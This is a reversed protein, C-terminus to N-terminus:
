LTRNLGRKATRSKIIWALYFPHALNCTCLLMMVGNVITFNNNLVRTLLLTIPYHLACFMGLGMLSLGYLFGFHHSPYVVSCFAASGAYLSVRGFSLLTMTVYQVKASPLLSLGLTVIVSVDTILVQITVATFSALRLGLSGTFRKRFYDMLIGSLPAFFISLGQIVGFAITYTNVESTEVKTTIWSNFTGIFYTASIEFIGNHLLATWTYVEKLCENLSTCHPNESDAVKDDRDKDVDYDEELIEYKHKTDRIEHLDDTNSKEAFCPLEKYGFEYNKPLDYPPTRKPYFFFTQVVLLLSSAAYALFITRFSWGASFYLLYFALYVLCSSDTAGSILTIILARYKSSLNAVTLTNILLAQGSFCCLSFSLYLMWSREPTALATMVSGLIFLLLLLSRTIWNGYRDSAHGYLVLFMLPVSNFVAYVLNLSETQSTCAPITKTTTTKNSAQTTTVNTTKIKPFCNETFFGESILMPQLSTWGFVVGFYLFAELTAVIVTVVVQPKM